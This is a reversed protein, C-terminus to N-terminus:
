VFDPWRISKLDATGSFIQQRLNNRTNRIRVSREEIKTLVDKLQDYNLGIVTNDALTWDTYFSSENNLLKALLLKRIMADKSKEDTQYINNSIEITSADTIIAMNKMDSWKANQLEAYSRTDVWSMTNNDWWCGHDPKNDIEYLQINTYKIFVDDKYYGSFPRNNGDALKVIDSEMHEINSGCALIEGTIRNYATKM